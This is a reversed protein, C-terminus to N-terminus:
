EEVAASRAPAKGTKVVIIEVRRNKSKNADGANSVAPHTEGMAVTEVRDAKVGKSILYRTVVMARNASLDLNDQWLHKTKRIPDNDTYGYVRLPLGAYTGKLDAAIKDLHQKGAETLTAKGAAFLIDSALTVRDGTLGREWDKGGTTIASGAAPAAPGKRNLDDKLRALEMDKADMQNVLNDKDQKATVLAAQLEKNKNELLQKEDQLAKITQKDNNCGVASVVLAALVM